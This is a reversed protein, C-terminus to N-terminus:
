RHIIEKQFAIRKGEESPRIYITGCETFGCKKLCHQMVKNDPHTDIRINDAYQGCWEVIFSLIGKYKGNSAVRHVVHYDKDNIWKGDKIEAYTSDPGKRFYFVGCVEGHETVVYGYGNQIDDEIVSQPPWTSYWQNPNGTDKMFQRAVAYVEMISYIDKHESKRIDM